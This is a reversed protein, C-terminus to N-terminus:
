HRIPATAEYLTRSSLMLSRADYAEQSQAPHPYRVSIVQNVPVVLKIVEQLIETTLAGLGHTSGILSTPTPAAPHDTYDAGAVVKTSRDTM